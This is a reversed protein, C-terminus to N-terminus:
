IRSVRFLYCCCACHYPFGWRFGVEAFAPVEISVGKQSGTGEKESGRQGGDLIKIMEEEDRLESEVDKISEEVPKRKLFLLTLVPLVFFGITVAVIKSRGSGGPHDRSCMVAWTHLSFTSHFDRNKCADESEGVM